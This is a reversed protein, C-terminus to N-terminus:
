FSATAGAILLRGGFQVAEHDEDVWLATNVMRHGSGPVGITLANDKSVRKTRAM